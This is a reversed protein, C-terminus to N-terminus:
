AAHDAVLTTLLAAYSYEPTASMTFQAVLGVSLEQRIAAAVMTMVTAVKPSPPTTMAPTRPPMSIPPPTRARPASFAATLAASLVTALLVVRATSFFTTLDASSFAALAVSFDVALAASFPAALSM